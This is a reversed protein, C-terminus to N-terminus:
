KLQYAVQPNNHIQQEIKAADTTLGCGGKKAKCSNLILLAACVGIFQFIRKKM